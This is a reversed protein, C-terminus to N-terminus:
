RVLKEAVKTPASGQHSVWLEGTFTDLVYCGYDARSGPVAAAYTALHFRRNANANQQAAAQGHAENREPVPLFFAAIMAAVILVASAALFTRM